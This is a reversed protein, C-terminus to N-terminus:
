RPNLNDFCSNAVSITAKVWGDNTHVIVRTGREYRQGGIKKVCRDIDDPALIFKGHDLRIEHHLPSIKMLFVLFTVKYPYSIGQERHKCAVITGTQFGGNFRAKVRQDVGYRLPM